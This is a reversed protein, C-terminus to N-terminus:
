LQLYPLFFDPASPPSKFRDIHGKNSADRDEHPRSKAMDRAEIIKNQLLYLACPPWPTSSQVKKFGGSSDSSLVKKKRSTKQSTIQFEWKYFLAEPIGSIGPFERSDLPIWPFGCNHSSSPAGTRSTSYLSTKEKHSAWALGVQFPAATRM